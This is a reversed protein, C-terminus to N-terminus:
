KNSSLWAIMERLNETSINHKAPYWHASVDMGKRALFEATRQMPACPLVEDELGHSIFVKLDKLKDPTAVQMAVEPYLQGSLSIIGAVREPYRLGTTLSMIAGQSFGGVFIKDPSAGKQQTIQEAFALLANSSNVVGKADYTWDEKTRNLPYWSYKGEMLTLPARPCIVLWEPGIYQAFSFLDKENSGYGHLLFLTPTQTTIGKAPPRIEYIYEAVPNKQTVKASQSPPATTPEVKSKCGLTITLLLLIASKRLM